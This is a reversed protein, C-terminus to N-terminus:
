VSEGARRGAPAHRGAEAAHAGAAAPPALLGQVRAAKVALHADLRQVGDHLDVGLLEEIRALRHYLSSRHLNLVRAAERAQGALDLFCELTLLLERGAPEAALRAVAPEVEGLSGVREPLGTLYRYPGLREWRLVRGARATARALEVARGAGGTAGAPEASTTAGAPEASTTADALEAAFIAKTLSQALASADRVAPGIGVRLRPHEARLAEFAREPESAAAGALLVILAGDRLACAAEGQATARRIAAASEGASPGGPVDLSAAVRLSHARALLGQERLEALAAAAREPEPDLADLVLAQTRARLGLSAQHARTLVQAAELAAGCAAEIQAQALTGDDLLWLFGLAVGEEGGEGRIPVCLRAEMGLEPAAPVRLPGTASHLGIRRMHEVVAAPAARNLISALRVRDVPQAHSSHALLRFRHDDIDVPRGIGAALRDAIRQLAPSVEDGRDGDYPDASAEPGSRTGQATM